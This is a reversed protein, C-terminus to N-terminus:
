VKTYLRIQRNVRNTILFIVGDGKTISSHFFSFLSYSLTEKRGEYDM